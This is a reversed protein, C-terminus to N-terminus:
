KSIELKYVPETGVSDSRVAYYGDTTQVIFRCWEETPLGRWEILVCYRGDDSIQWKGRATSGRNRGVTAANVGQNDSSIIFSGDADNTWFHTNGRGSVRSMKAGAMLPTVEEKSLKKPSKSELDRLVMREPPLQAGALAASMLLAAALLKNPRQM